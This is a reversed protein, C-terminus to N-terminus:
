PRFRALLGVRPPQPVDPLRGAIGAAVAVAPGMFASAALASLLRSALIMWYAASWAGLLNSVALLATAAVLLRRRPVRSTLTAVVPSCIAYVLAFLTILQGAVSESVSM